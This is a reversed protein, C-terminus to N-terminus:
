GAACSRLTESAMLAPKDCTEERLALALQPANYARAEPGFPKAGLNYKARIRAVREAIERRYKEPAYGSRAFWERYQKLLKPFREQLFPFFQKQSSPM